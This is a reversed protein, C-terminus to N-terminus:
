GRTKKVAFLAATATLLVVLASVLLISTYGGGGAQSSTTDTAPTPKTTATNTATQQTTTPTTTSTSPPTTPTTQTPKTTTATTTTQEPAVLPRALPYKDLIEIGTTTPIPYPQDTIGDGDLDPAKNNSWYNGMRITENYWTNGGSEDAAEYNYCLWFTNGYITNQSTYKSMYVGVNGTRNILNFAISNGRGNSGHVGRGGSLTNNLILNGSGYLEIAHGGASVTNAEVVNGDGVLNVGNGPTTVQNREIVSQSGRVDIGGNLVRNGEILHSKGDVLIGAASGTINVENGRAINGESLAGGVAVGVGESAVRNFEVDMRGCYAVAAASESVVTNYFLSLSTCYGYVAERGSRISSYEILASAKSDASGVQVGYKYSEVVINTLVADLGKVLVAVSGGTSEDLVIKLNGLKVGNASVVVGGYVVVTENSEGIVTVSKSVTFGKYSGRSVLIVDGMSAHDLAAQISGYDGPVRITSGRAVVPMSLLLLILVLCASSLPPRM